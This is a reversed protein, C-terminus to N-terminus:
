KAEAECLDDGPADPDGFQPQTEYEATAEDFELSARITAQIQYIINLQGAIFQRQDSTQRPDQVQQACMGEFRALMLEIADRGDQSISKWATSLVIDYARAVNPDSLDGEAIKQLRKALDSNPLQIM